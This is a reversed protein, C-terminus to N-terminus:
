ISVKALLPTLFGVKKEMAMILNLNKNPFWACFASAFWNKKKIFSSVCDRQMFSM